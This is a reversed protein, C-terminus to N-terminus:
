FDFALWWAHTSSHSRAGAAVFVESSSVPWLWYYTFNVAEEDSVRCFGTQPSYYGLEGNEGGFAFGGSPLERLDFIDGLNDHRELVHWSTDFVSVITQDALAGVSLVGLSTSRVRRVTPMEPGEDYPPEVLDLRGKKWWLFRPETISIALEDEGVWEMFDYLIAGIQFQQVPQPRRGDYRVLAGERTLGYRRLGGQVRGQALRVVADPTQVHDTVCPEDREIEWAGTSEVHNIRALERDRCGSLLISGDEDLLASDRPLDSPLEPVPTITSSRARFFRASEDSETGVLMSGDGLPEALTVWGSGHTLKTLSIKPCPKTRPHAGGVWARFPATEAETLEFDGSSSREAVLTRDGDPIPFARRGPVEKPLVGPALGLETLSKTYLSVFRRRSKGLLVPESSSVALDVATVETDGNEKEVVVLASAHGDTRVVGMNQPECALLALLAAARMEVKACEEFMNAGGPGHHM